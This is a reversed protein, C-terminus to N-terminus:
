TYRYLHLFAKIENFFEWGEKWIESKLRDLTGKYLYKEFFSQLFKLFPREEWKDKWDLVLAATVYVNVEGKNMKVKKGEKQVEVDTLGFIQWKVKILFQTYEDIDRTAEWKIELEKGTPKVKEKYKKEEIDYKRWELWDHAHKYLEKLDFIGEFQIREEKLFDITKSM